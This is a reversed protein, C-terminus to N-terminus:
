ALMEEISRHIRERVGGDGLDDYFNKQLMLYDHTLDDPAKALVCLVRMKLEDYDHCVIRAPSYDFAGSVLQRTNHTYDHFLVPIGAALCEDALSTHKAIILDSHACLDYSIMPRSYDTSITINEAREIQQILDTFVDLDGWGIEKFRLIIMIGPIELSLRIMDQLFERHASWSLMPDVQSDQWNRRTHFGLATIVRTGKDASKKIIEPSPNKQIELLNDSRYQGVPVVRDICYLPSRKIVEASFTSTCLYDSLITSGFLNNFSVFFREQTAVTRIGRSMFALLLEKPCLIEYDILAINLDPYSELEQAFVQFNRYTRALVVLSLINGFSRIHLVGRSMARIWSRIGSLRSQRMRGLSIWNLHEAPSQVGSYDLHLLNKPHLDSTPIHSYFLDKNFLNGYNLGHHVVYAVRSRQPKELPALPNDPKKDRNFFWSSIGRPAWLLFNWAGAIMGAILETPILLQRVNPALELIVHTRPSVNVLLVRREPNARAWLNVKGGVMLMPYAVASHIVVQLKRVIDPINPFLTKYGELLTEPAIQQVRHFASMDLNYYVDSVTTLKPLDEIPLPLVGTEKLRLARLNRAAEGMDGSLELYYVRNGIRRLARGVIDLYGPLSAFVIDM